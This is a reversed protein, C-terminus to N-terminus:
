ETLFNRISSNVPIIFERWDQDAEFEYSEHEFIFFGELPDGAESFLYGSSDGNGWDVVAVYRRAIEPHTEKFWDRIVATLNPIASIPVFFWDTEDDRKTGFGNFEGYFSRFEPPMKFGLEKDLSDLEETTAPKGLELSNPDDTHALKYYENILPRWENMSTDEATSSDQGLTAASGQAAM